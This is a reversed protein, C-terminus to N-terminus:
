SEVGQNKEYWKQLKGRGHVGIKNCIANRHAQVTQVSISLEEAIQKNSHGKGALELVEEERDSLMQIAEGYSMKKKVKM